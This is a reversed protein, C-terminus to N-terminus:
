FLALALQKGPLTILSVSWWGKEEPDFLLCLWHISCTELLSVLFQMFVFFFFFLLIPQEFLLIGELPSFLVFDLLVVHVSVACSIGISQIFLSSLLVSVATWLYRKILLHGSSIAKKKTFGGSCSMVFSCLQPPSLTRTVWSVPFSSHSFSLVFPWVRHTNQWSFVHIVSHWIVTCLSIVSPFSHIFFCMGPHHPKSSRHTFHCLLQIVYWFHM